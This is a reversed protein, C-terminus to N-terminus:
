AQSWDFLVISLRTLRSLLGFLAADVEAAPAELAQSLESVLDAFRRGDCRELMLAELETLPEQRLGDHGPFCLLAFVGEPTPAGTLLPVQETTLWLHHPGLVVRRQGATERLREQHAARLQEAEQPPYTALARLQQALLGLRFLKRDLWLCARLEGVFPEAAGTANELLCEAVAFFATELSEPETAPPILACLRAALDFARGQVLRRVTCPALVGAPTKNAQPRCRALLAALDAQGAQVADRLPALASLWDALPTRPWCSKRTPARPHYGGFYTAILAHPRFAVPGSQFRAGPVWPQHVLLRHAEYHLRFPPRTTLARGPELRASAATWDAWDQPYRELTHAQPRAAMSATGGCSAALAPQLWRLFDLAEVQDMQNWFGQWQLSAGTPVFAVDVRGVYEALAERTLADDAIDVADLMLVDPSEVLFACQEEGEASGRAPLIHVRLGDELTVVDGPVFAHLERFGLSLLLQRPSVDCSCTRPDEDLFYIPTSPPLGLLSPPHLHDDHGHSLFVATVAALDERLWRPCTADRFSLDERVLVPDLLVRQNGRSVAFSTHGLHEIWTSM